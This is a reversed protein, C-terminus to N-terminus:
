PDGTEPKPAPGRSLRILPPCAATSAAILPTLPLITVSSRLSVPPLYPTVVPRAFSAIVGVVVGVVVVDLGEDEAALFGEVRGLQLVEQGGGGAAVVTIRVYRPNIDARKPNPTFAVSPGVIRAFHAPPMDFQVCLMELLCQNGNIVVQALVPAPRCVQVAKEMFPHREFLLLPEVLRGVEKLARDIEVRVVCGRVM